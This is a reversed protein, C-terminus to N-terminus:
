HFTPCKQNHKRAQKQHTTSQRSLYSSQIYVVSLGNHSTFQHLFEAFITTSPNTKVRRPINLRLPPDHGYFIRLKHQYPPPFTSFTAKQGVQFSSRFFFLGALRREYRALALHELGFFFFVAPYQDQRLHHYFAFILLGFSFPFPSVKKIM